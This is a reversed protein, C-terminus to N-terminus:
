SQVAQIDVHGQHVHRCSRAESVIEMIEETYRGERLAIISFLYERSYHGGHAKGIHCDFCLQILNEVMDPGGESVPNVHHAGSYAKMGCVECYEKRAAKTAQRDRLRKPKPIPTM